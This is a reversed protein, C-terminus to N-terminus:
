WAPPRPNSDWRTWAIRSSNAQSEAPWYSLPLAGFHERVSPERGATKFPSAHHFFCLVTPGTVHLGDLRQGGLCSCMGLADATKSLFLCHAAIQLFEKDLHSRADLLDFNRRLRHAPPSHIQAVLIKANDQVYSLVLLSREELNAREDTGPLFQQHQVRLRPFLVQQQEAPLKVRSPSNQGLLLKQAALVLPVPKDRSYGLVLRHARNRFRLGCQLRRFHPKTLFRHSDLSLPTELSPIPM